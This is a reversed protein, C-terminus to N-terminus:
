CHAFAMGCDNRKEIRCCTLSRRLSLFIFSTYVFYWVGLCDVFFPNYIIQSLFTNLSFAISELQASVTNNDQTNLFCVNNNVILASISLSSALVVVILVTYKYNVIIVNILTNQIM